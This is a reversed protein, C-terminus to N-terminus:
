KERKKTGDIITTFPTLQTKDAVESNEIYVSNLKVDNGIKSSKITCFPGITVNDGIVTEGTIFNNPYIIVNKGITVDADIFTTNKDIFQVGNQQHYNLIRQHLVQGANELQQMNFVTLFDEKGFDHQETTAFIREAQKIYDTTFIWGRDLKCVNLKKTQVWDLINLFTRRQLLPTDAYFVATWKKNKLHPRITTVIDTSMDCELETIPCQDFALKVWDTLTKGLLPLQYSKKITQLAPNHIKLVIVDVDSDVPDRQISELLSEVSGFLDTDTTRIEM